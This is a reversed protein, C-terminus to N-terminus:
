GSGPRRAAQGAAAEARELVRALAAVVGPDFQTGAHAELEARAARASLAARYPRDARMAHYADAVLVIRAGLPIAEGALGDPYGRGDWREHDHRVIRRVGSLFPVPALIEEGAVPHRRVAELETPSLPGAKTLIARPVAVKGIDHFLAGYRLDRLEADSVGLERGIAVALEAVSSAHDAPYRDNGELAAALAAATGLHADELEEHLRATRLASGLHDAVTQALDADDEDFACGTAADLVLAGKAALLSAVTSKGSGIGGTLGIVVVAL